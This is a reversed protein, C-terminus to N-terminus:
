KANKEAVALQAKAKALQASTMPVLKATGAISIASDVTSSLFSKVQPKAMSKENVYMFLPRGLPAYTGDQVTAVTPKICGKGADVGVITLKSGAAEAYSYGFYGFGGKDGEVGTVLQNDDESPQYNERTVGKTGNIKETFFDFTGSDTGPGFLSLKTKSFKPDVQSLSNVQSGKNWIQKLQATTLCDIGLAPNAVVAIGDNAVQVQQYTVGGKSCAAVEEPSISRSADSIDTEGACFKQFGGGTGSEGVAIKVGSQTQNFSEAAAQALPFVTSSGDVRISGTLNGGGSSSSGGCATLSVGLVMLAGATIFGKKSIM